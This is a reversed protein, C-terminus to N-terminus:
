KKRLSNKAIDKAFGSSVILVPLCIDFCLFLVFGINLMTQSFFYGMIWSGPIWAVLTILVWPWLSSLLHITKSSRKAWWTLPAHIRTGAVGAIIGIFAPVFGGGVPFMLASLLVLMVGGHKRHVFGAAWILVSLGFITALIGTVLYNPLLTLAPFCAHWATEPQCDHGMANIMPSNTAINGQLIEFIGHEIGLLGAYFGLASAAILTTNHPFFGRSIGNSKPFSFKYHHNPPLSSM